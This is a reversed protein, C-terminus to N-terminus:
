GGLRSKKDDRYSLTKRRSSATMALAAMQEAEARDRNADAAQRQQQERLASTDSQRQNRRGTLGSVLNEVFGGM